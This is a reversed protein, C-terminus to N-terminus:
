DGTDEALASDHDHQAREIIEAARQLITLDGDSLYKGLIAMDLVPSGLPAGDKGTVEHKKPAVVGFLKSKAEVTEIVRKLYIPKNDSEKANDTSSIASISKERVWDLIASSEALVADTRTKDRKAYDDQVRKIMKRVAEHDSKLPYAPFIKNLEATIEYLKKGEIIRLEYAKREREESIEPPIPPRPKRKPKEKLPKDKEEIKQNKM